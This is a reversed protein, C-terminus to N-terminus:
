PKALYLCIDDEWEEDLGHMDKINEQRTEEYKKLNGMCKM